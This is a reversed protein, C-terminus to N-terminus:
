CYKSCKAIKWYPPCVVSCGGSKDNPKLTIDGKRQSAVLQLIAEQEPEPLNPHVMNLPAHFIDDHLAQLFIMLSKPPASKPYNTKIQKFSRKARQDINDM